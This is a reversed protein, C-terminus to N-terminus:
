VELENLLQNVLSQMSKVSITQQRAQGVVQSSIVSQEALVNGEETPTPVSVPQLRNALQELVARLKDLQEGHENLASQLPSPPNALIGPGVIKKMAEVEKTQYEM